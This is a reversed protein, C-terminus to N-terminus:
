GKYIYRAMGNLHLISPFINQKIKNSRKVLQYWVELWLEWTVCFESEIILPCMFVVSKVGFPGSM